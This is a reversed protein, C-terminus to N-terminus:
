GHDCDKYKHEVYLQNQIITRETGDTFKVGLEYYYVGCILEDYDLLDIKFHSEQQELYLVLKNDELNKKVAFWYVDNEILKLVEGDQTRIEVDFELTDHYYTYLKM